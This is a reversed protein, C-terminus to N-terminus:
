GAKTSSRLVFPLHGLAAYICQILNEVPVIVRSQSAGFRHHAFTAQPMSHIDLQRSPSSWGAEGQSFAIYPRFLGKLSVVVINSV